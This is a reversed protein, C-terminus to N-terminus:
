VHIGQMVGQSLARCLLSRDRWLLARCKRLLARNRSKHTYRAHCRAFPSYTGLLSLVPAQSQQSFSGQIDMFLAGDRWLFLGVERPTYVKCSVKLFIGCSLPRVSTITTFFLGKYGCFLGIEGCFSGWRGAFSGQRELRTYRAHRGSCFRSLSLASAQSQPSFSGKIDV